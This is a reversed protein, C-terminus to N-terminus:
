IPTTPQKLQMSFWDVDSAVRKIARVRVVHVDELDLLHHFLSHARPGDVQAAVQRDGAPRPLDDDPEDFPLM